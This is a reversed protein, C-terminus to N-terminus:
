CGNHQVAAGFVAYNVRDPGDDILPTSVANDFDAGTLFLFCRLCERTNDRIWAAYGDSVAVVPVATIQPRQYGHLEVITKEVSPFLEAKTKILLRFESASEVKGEWRYVSTVPGELQCCAAVKDEVLRAAIKELVERDDSTTSIQIFETEM